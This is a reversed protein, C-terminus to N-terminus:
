CGECDNYVMSPHSSCPLRSVINGLMFIRADSEGCIISYLPARPKGGYKLYLFHM